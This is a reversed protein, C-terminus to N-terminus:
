DFDPESNGSPSSTTGLVGSVRKYYRVLSDRSAAFLVAELVIIGFWGGFTPGNGRVVQCLAVGLIAVLMNSYFQYYRYHWEVTLIYSDLHSQLNSFDFPPYEVGTRHILTDVVAWRVASVILGIALSGLVLYLFSGITPAQEPTAALWATLTPSFASVGWLAVLGPIVFAIVLGFNRHINDM